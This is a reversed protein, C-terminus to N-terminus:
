GVMDARRYYFRGLDHSPLIPMVGQADLKAKMAKPAFSRAAAFDKLSVHEDRFRALDESMFVTVSAGKGNKILEHRLYPEGGPRKLRALNAFAQRHMGLVRAAEDAGVRDASKQRSLVMRVEVPDVLIGKIKLSQDVTEARSLTGDLIGTVIDVIPWRSVEAADFLDTMGYTPASVVQVRGMLRALFADVDEMAIHKLVGTAQPDDPLLKPIVGGRVLQQALVRNCNLYGPLKVTSISNKIRDALVEGAAADFTQHAVVHAPDGGCLGSLVAARFLTKPHEGTAEALSHASHVRQRAVPEGFLDSGVEIPFHDLIFDRTVDRIAGLPKANKNFQLWKYLKGFAKQPGGRGGGAVFRDMAVQLGNRVGEEGCSAFGFGVDGAESWGATTVTPLTVDPHNTLIVGLMECARASLDIPQDDLWAPGPAGALRGVVYAQLRSPQLEYAAEVLKKLEDDNPAVDDMVQLKESLEANPRRYLAIGHKTCSRVTEIQWAFRGVRMGRSPSGNEGDELLCAPCFTTQDFNAFEAHFSEGALTRQRAGLPRITIREIWSIPMGTVHSVRSITAEDPSTLANRAIELMDLFAFLHRKAHFKATRHLYSTLSEDGLIPVAPLLPM